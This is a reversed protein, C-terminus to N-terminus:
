RAESILPYTQLYMRCGRMPRKWFMFSPVFSIHSFLELHQIEVRWCKLFISFEERWAQSSNM